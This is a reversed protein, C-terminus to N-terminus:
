ASPSRTLRPGSPSRVIWCCSGQRSRRSIVHSLGAATARETNDQVTSLAIGLMTAIDRVSIGDASLRLLQTRSKHDSHRGAITPIQMRM